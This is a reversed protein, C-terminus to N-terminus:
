RLVANVFGWLHIRKQTVHILVAGECMVEELAWKWIKKEDLGTDGCNITILEM